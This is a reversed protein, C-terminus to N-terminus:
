GSGEKEVREESCEREAETGARRTVVRVQGVKPEFCLIRRSAETRVIHTRMKRTKFLYGEKLVCM